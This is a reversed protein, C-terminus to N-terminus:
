KKYKQFRLPEDHVLNCFELSSFIELLSTEKGNLICKNKIMRLGHSYDVYSVVHDIANLNQIITGDANFWGFIAVNNKYKQNTLVNTLVVDKKHGAVLDGFSYNQQLLQEQIKNSHDLYCRTSDRNYKKEQNKYLEGWTIARPKIKAASYIQRVMKPTPLVLDNIAMYQAATLPSMPCHIWGNSNGLSIYDTSVFYELINNGNIVQVKTFEFNVLEGSLLFSEIKEERKQHNLSQSLIEFIKNTIDM